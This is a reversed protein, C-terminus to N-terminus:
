LKRKGSLTNANRTARFTILMLPGWATGDSLLLPHFDKERGNGNATRQHLDRFKSKTKSCHKKQLKSISKPLTLASTPKQTM